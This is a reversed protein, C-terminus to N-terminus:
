NIKKYDIGFIDGIRKAINKLSGSVNEDGLLRDNEWFGNTGELDRMMNEIVTYDKVYFEGTKNRTSVFAPIFGYVESLSHIGEGYELSTVPQSLNPAAKNLYHITRAAFLLSIMERIDGIQREVETYDSQSLAKRGKQFATFIKVDINQIFDAGQYENIIYNAIFKAQNDRNERGLLMYALDWHYELMTYAKRPLFKRDTNEQRLTENKMVADGLHHNVIQDLLIIGMIQKETAEAMEIGREDVYRFVGGIEKSGVYGAQGQIARTDSKILAQRLAILRTVSQSFRDKAKNKLETNKEFLDPSSATWDEISVAGGPLTIKRKYFGDFESQNYVATRDIKDNLTLLNDIFAQSDRLARYLDSSSQQVSSNSGSNAGNDSSVEEKGGCAVMVMLGLSCFIVKKM